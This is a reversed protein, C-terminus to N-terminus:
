AAGHCKKYKKGSGCFCPENRGPVPAVHRTEPKAAFDVWLMRLEQVAICAETVLDDRTPAALEADGPAGYFKAIHARMADGDPPMTLAEVHAMADAMAAQAEDDPPAAWLAPFADVGALFGDAWVRGLQFQAAEEASLGDEDVLRKRDDDSWDQLWPDLRLQDPDDFLREPDLLECLLKLRSQLARLAQAHDDPDAFVRDFTDDGGLAPLWDAADPVRPGAALATLFGDVWEFSLSPDFGGLRDCVRDFADVEASTNQRPRLTIM